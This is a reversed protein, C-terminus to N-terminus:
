DSSQNFEQLAFLSYNEPMLKVVELNHACNRHDIM